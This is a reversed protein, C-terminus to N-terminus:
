APLSISLLPSVRGAPPPAARQRRRDLEHQDAVALQLGRELPLRHRARRHPHEVAEAVVPHRRSVRLDVHERQGRPRRRAPLLLEPPHDDLRQPAAHRDDARIRTLDWPHDAQRAAPHDEGLAVALRQGRPQPAAHAARAARSSARAPRAATSRRNVTGAAVSGSSRSSRSRPRQPRLRSREGPARLAPRTAYLAHHEAVMGEWGFSLAPARAAAGLRARLAPDAGLRRLREAIM